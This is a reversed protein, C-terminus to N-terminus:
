HTKHNRVVPHETRYLPASYNFSCQCVDSGTKLVHTSDVLLIDDAQLERFLSISIEQLPQSKIELNKREINKLLSHLREPNPDIFTCHTSYKFVELTDLILRSSFGSGVEILRNPTLHRLMGYLFVGDAFAYWENDLYYRLNEKRETGFPMESYYTSICKLYEIQKDTNLDVGPITSDYHV